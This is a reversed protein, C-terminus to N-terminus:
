SSPVELTSPSSPLSEPRRRGAKPTGRASEVVAEATASDTVLTTVWRGELAAAVGAAKGTGSVVAIVTPVNLLDPLSLGVIQHNFPIDILSGDSAIQQAMIDGVAGAEMLDAITSDSLLRSNRLTSDDEQICGIGVLALDVSRAVTMTDSLSTEEVLAKRVSPDRVILPAPFYRYDAGLKTALQRVLEPGDFSPNELSLSGSLQIVTGDRLETHPFQTVLHQITRSWALGVRIGDKLKRQLCLAGLRGVMRATLKAEGRPPNALIYADELGFTDILQRELAKSRALPYNVRIEVLNNDRVENLLRSVMSRSKGIREGIEQQSLGDEYYWVAIQALEAFRRQDVREGM